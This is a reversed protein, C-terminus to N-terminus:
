LTNGDQDKTSSVYMGNVISGSLNGQFGIYFDYLFNKVLRQSSNLIVMETRLNRKASTVVIDEIDTVNLTKIAIKDFIHHTSHLIVTRTNTNCKVRIKVLGTYTMTSINPYLYLIYKIPTFSKPLRPENYLVGHGEAPADFALSSFSFESLTTQSSDAGGSYVAFATTAAVFLTGVIIGIIEPKRSTGKKSFNRHTILRKKKESDESDSDNDFLMQKLFGSYDFALHIAM